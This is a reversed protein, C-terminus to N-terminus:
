IQFHNHISTSLFTANFCFSDARSKVRCLIFYSPKFTLGFHIIEKSHVVSSYLWSSSSETLRKKKKRKKWKKEHRRIYEGDDMSSEAAFNTASRWIARSAVCGRRSIHLATKGQGKVQCSSWSQLVFFWTERDGVHHTYLHHIQKHSQICLLQVVHSSAIVDIYHWWVLHINAQWMVSTSSTMHSVLSLLFGLVFPWLSCVVM